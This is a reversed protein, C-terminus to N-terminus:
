LVFLFPFCSGKKLLLAGVWIIMALLLLLTIMIVVDFIRISYKAKIEKNKEKQHDISVFWVGNLATYLLVFIMLIMAQPTNNRIQFYSMVVYIDVILLLEFAFAILFMWRIGKNEEKIQKVVRNQYRFSTLVLLIIALVAYLFLLPFPLHISCAVVVMTMFLFTISTIGVEFLMESLMRQIQAEDYEEDDDYGALLSYDHHRMFYCFPLDLILFMLLYNSNVFYASVSARKVYMILFLLLTAVVNIFLLWRFLSYPPQIEKKQLGLILDDMSVHFIEAIQALSELDPQTRGKEWSSITQRSVCLLDALEQQTMGQKIRLRSFRESFREM